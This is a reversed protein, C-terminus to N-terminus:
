IPCWWALIQSYCLPSYYVLSSNLFGSTRVHLFFFFFFFFFFFGRSTHHNLYNPACHKIFQILLHIHPHYHSINLSKDQCSCTSCHRKNNILNYNLRHVQVTFNQLSRLSRHTIISLSVMNQWLIARTPISVTLQILISLGNM